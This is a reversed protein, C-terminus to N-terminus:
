GFNGVWYIASCSKFMPMSAGSDVNTLVMNHGEKYFSLGRLTILLVTGGWHPGVPGDVGGLPFEM